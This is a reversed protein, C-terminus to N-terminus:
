SFYLFNMKKEDKKVSKKRDQIFIHKMILNKRKNIFFKNTIYNKQFFRFFGLNKRLKNLISIFKKM